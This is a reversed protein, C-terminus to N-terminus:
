PLLIPPALIYTSPGYLIRRPEQSFSLNSQGVEGANTTTQIFLINQPSGFGADTLQSPEVPPTGQEFIVFTGADNFSLLRVLNGSADQALQYWRGDSTFEVPQDNTNSPEGSCFLWRGAIAQYAEAMSGISRVPSEPAACAPSAGDLPTLLADSGPAAGDRPPSAPVYISPGYLMKRPTASFSLNTGLSGPITDTYLTIGFAMKPPDFGGDLPLEGNGSPSIVFTGTKGFGVLRAVNGSADEALSFWHGDSTFEIPEDLTNSPEGSCFLWQGAIAQYVDALQTFARVPGDAVACAPPLTADPPSSTDLVPLPADDHVFRDPLALPADAHSSADVVPLPHSADQAPSTMADSGGTGMSADRGPGSMDPSNCMGSQCVRGPNCDEDTACHDKGALDIGNCAALAVALLAIGITSKM